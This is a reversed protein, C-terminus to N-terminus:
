PAPWLVKKNKGDTLWLSPGLKSLSIYFSGTPGKLNMGPEVDSSQTSISAFSNEDSGMLSINAGANNAEFSARPAGKDDFLELGPTDKQVSLGARIEKEYVGLGCFGRNAALQVSQTTGLRNLVLFPEDGAALSVPISGNPNYFSLTPRDDVEMSLRARVKGAKDKLVIEEAELVRHSQGQGMSFVASLLVALTAAGRKLRHNQKELKELRANISRMNTQTEM